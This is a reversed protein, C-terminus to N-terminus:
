LASLVVSTILVAVFALLVVPMSMIETSQHVIKGLQCVLATASTIVIVYKVQHATMLIMVDANTTQAAAFALLVAPMSTMEMTQQVLKNTLCVLATVSTIVIVYNVQHATMTIMVDVSTTQAAAFALLVAPMSTMEMTQQVLKNTLCVLATVSTIVIVYNVQHATMTIMVDVSTTQAAAFALLVAPMSTMEMTQQVLKNTLCVLATASTTAIAFKVQHATTV